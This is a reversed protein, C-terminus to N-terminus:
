KPIPFPGINQGLDPRPFDRITTLERAQLHLNSILLCVGLIINIYWGQILASIFRYSVQNKLEPPMPRLNIPQILKKFGDYFIVEVTEVINCLHYQIFNWKSSVDGSIVRAELNNFKLATEFEFYLAIIPQKRVHHTRLCGIM